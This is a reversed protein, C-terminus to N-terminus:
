CRPWSFKNNLFVWKAWPWDSRVWTSFPSVVANLEVYHYICYTDAVFGFEGIFGTKLGGGSPPSILQILLLLAICPIPVLTWQFLLPILFTQLVFSWLWKSAEMLHHVLIGKLTKQSKKQFIWYFCCLDVAPFTMVWLAPNRRKCWRNRSKFFCKKNLYWM